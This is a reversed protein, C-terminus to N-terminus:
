GPVPGTVAFAVPVSHELVLETAAGDSTLRLRVISQPGGWSVSFGHPPDCEQVEGGANGEM